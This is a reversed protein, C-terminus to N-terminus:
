NNLQRDHIGIQAVLKPHKNTMQKLADNYLTTIMQYKSAM